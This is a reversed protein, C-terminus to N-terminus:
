LLREKVRKEGGAAGRQSFPQRGIKGANRETVGRPRRSDAVPHHSGTGSARLPAKKPTGAGSRLPLRSFQRLAKLRSNKGPLSALRHLPRFFIKLASAGPSMM